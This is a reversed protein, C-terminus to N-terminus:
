DGMLERRALVDLGWLYIHQEAHPSFSAFLWPKSVIPRVYYFLPAVAAEGKILEWEAERYLALRKMPDHEVAAQAVLDDFAGPERHAINRRGEAHFLDFLMSHADPYDTCWGGCWILPTEGPPTEGLVIPLWDTSTIADLQVEVGLVEQWMAQVAEAIRWHLEWESFILTIEPLGEGNPYGAEALLQPAEERAQDPDLAWPALDPDDIVSGFVGPPVFSTAPVDVRGVADIIARRDIAKAFALRLRPDNFPYRSNNFAYFYTCPEPVIVLEQSLVPDNWVTPLNALAVEAYDLEGEQYLALAMAPDTIMMAEIRDIQLEDANYFSPNAEFVMRDNHSWEVLRYPGNIWINEPETWKDGHEEIAESPVPRNVSLGVIAPFYAAPRELSFEVTYDDIARVGLADLDTLDGAHVAEANLIIYDLYAGESGTAPNVVRQFAYRVDDATVPRMPQGSINVWDVDKRIKFTWVLGDDSDEWGTALEPVVTDTFDDLDTLGLFLQEVVLRAPNNAALAPDTSVLDDRMNMYLTTHEPPLVLPPVTGAPAPIKTPAPTATSPKPKCGGASLLFALLFLVWIRKSM